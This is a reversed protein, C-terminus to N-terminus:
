IGSLSYQCPNKDIKEYTTTADKLIDELQKVQELM